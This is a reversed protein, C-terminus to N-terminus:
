SISIDRSVRKLSPSTDTLLNEKRKILMSQEGQQSLRRRFTLLLNLQHNKPHIM